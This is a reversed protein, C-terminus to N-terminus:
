GPLGPEAGSIEAATRQCGHFVEELVKNYIVLAIVVDQIEM